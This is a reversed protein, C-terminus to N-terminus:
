GQTEKPIFIAKYKPFVKTNRQPNVINLIERVAIGKLPSIQIQKRYEVIVKETKVKLKMFYKKCGKEEKSSPLCNGTKKM